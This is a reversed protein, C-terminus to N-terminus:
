RLAVDVQVVSASGEPVVFAREVPAGGEFRARVTYSGPALMWSLVRRRPRGDAAEGPPFSPTGVDLSFPRSTAAKWEPVTRGTTAELMFRGEADQVTFALDPPDPGDGPMEFTIDARVGRVLAVDLALDSGAPMTFSRSVVGMEQGLVSLRYEGPGLPVSWTDGDRSLTNAAIVGEMAPGTHVIGIRAERGIADPPWALRVRLRGPASLRVVGLDRWEHAVLGRVDFTGFETRGRQENVLLQYDGPVLPGFSVSGTQAEPAAALLRSTAMHQDALALWAIAGDPPADDVGLLRASLWASPHTDAPLRVVCGGDEIRVDRLVAVPLVSKRADWAFVRVEYPGPPCAGLTFRGARDTTLFESWPEVEDNAAFVLSHRGAPLGQSDVVRGDLRRGLDLVPDWVSDVGQQVVLKTRVEDGKRSSSSAVVEVERSPLGEISYSGDHASTTSLRAAEPAGVPGWVTIGSVPRGRQDTVIGRLVAAPALRIPLTTTRGGEITADGDFRGVGEARAMLSQTGVPLDELRFGGGEDTRVRRLRVGQDLWSSSRSRLSNTPVGFAVEAGAVPRGGPDTVTGELAGGLTELALDIVCRGDADEVGFRWSPPHGPAVADVWLAERVDRLAYAGDEDTSAADFLALASDGDGLRVTAGAVPEGDADTVSGSVHIGPPLAVFLETVAGPRVVARLADGRAHYLLVAGAPAEDCTWVGRADTTGAPWEAWPEPTDYGAVRVGIGAAPSGDAAWVM